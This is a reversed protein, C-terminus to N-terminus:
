RVVGTKTYLDKIFREPDDPGLVYCKGKKTRIAVCNYRTGSYMWYRGLERSSFLGFYGYLGGSAFLRIGSVKPILKANDVESIPIRISKIVRKVVVSQNSLEFGLPAFPAPAVIAAILAIWILIKFWIDLDPKLIAVVESIPLLLIATITIVKVFNDYKM